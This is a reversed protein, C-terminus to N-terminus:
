VFIYVIILYIINFVFGRGGSDQGRGGAQPTKKRKKETDRMEM